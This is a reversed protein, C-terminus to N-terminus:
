RLQRPLGNGHESRRATPDNDMEGTGAVIAAVLIVLCSAAVKRM